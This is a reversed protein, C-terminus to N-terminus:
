LANKFWHPALKKIERTFALDYISSKKRTYERLALGIPNDIKPKAEGRKARRLLEGKKQITIESKSLLWQPALKRIHEVFAPDYSSSSKRIYDGLRRYLPHDIKPKAEGRKAMGLLIKKKRNATQTQNSFWHPALKMIQKAFIPDYSSSNKYTYGMLARSLKTDRIPRKRKSKAMRLLTDKNQKVIESSFWNPRLRKIEKTFKPDYIHSKISTFGILSRALPHKDKRSPRAEDKKAMELLLRKKPANAEFPSWFWQPAIKRLKQDFSPDYIHSKKSTYTRLASNLPHEIGPRQEGKQAM